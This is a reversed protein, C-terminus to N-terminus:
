GLPKVKGSLRAGLTLTAPMAAIVRGLAAFRDPRMALNAFANAARIRTSFQRRWAAQYRAGAADRAQADHV